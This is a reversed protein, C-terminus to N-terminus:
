VLCSVIHSSIGSDINKVDCSELRIFEREQEFVLLPIDALLHFYHQGTQHFFRPSHGNPIDGIVICFEVVRGLLHHILYKM